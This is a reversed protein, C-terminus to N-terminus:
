VIRDYKNIIHRVYEPSSDGLDTGEPTIEVYDGFNALKLGAKDNDCVVVIKRNLMKLWNIYDKPPNNTLSAIASKGLNTMRAADFIGETLYVVGSSQYLSELGWLFVTPFNKNRYTYYKGELKSNFIKKNGLPNHQQYGVLKGSLNWCYFTCIGLEHDIIPRHLNINLHRSKLYQVLDLTM